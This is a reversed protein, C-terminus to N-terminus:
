QTRNITIANSTSNLNTVAEAYTIGFVLNTPLTYVIDPSGTNNTATPNYVLNTTTATPSGLPGWKQILQCIQIGNITLYATQLLQNTASFNQNAISATTQPFVNTVGLVSPAGNTPPIYTLANTTLIQGGTLVQASAPMALLVVGLFVCGAVRLLKRM